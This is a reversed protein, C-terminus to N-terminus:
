FPLDDPNDFGPSNDEGRQPLEEKRMKWDEPEKKGRSLKTLEQPDTMSQVPQKGGGKPEMAARAISMLEEKTKPMEDTLPNKSKSGGGRWTDSAEFGGGTKLQPSEEVVAAHEMEKEPIQAKYVKLYEQLVKDQEVAAADIEPNSRFAKFVPVQYTNNGNKEEVFESVGVVFNMPNFGKDLWASFAAGKFSFNCFEMSQDNKILLAYVSKAFKGGMAVISDRIDAYYGTVSEGGKFTKVRLLEKTTSHIENSYIGCKNKKNFGKITSLEDLTAFYVPLPVEVKKESTKDYYFFTGDDSSIEIFKTCPNSITPQSRSM